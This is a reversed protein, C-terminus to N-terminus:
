EQIEPHVLSIVAVSSLLECADNKPHNDFINVSWKVASGSTGM